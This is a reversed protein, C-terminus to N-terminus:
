CVGQESIAAAGTRFVIALQHAVGSHVPPKMPEAPLKPSCEVHLIPRREVAEAPELPHQNPEDAAPRAPPAGASGKEALTVGDILHRAVKNVLPADPVPRFTVLDITCM